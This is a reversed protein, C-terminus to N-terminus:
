AAAHGNPPDTPETMPAQARPGINRESGQSKRVGACHLAISRVRLKDAGTHANASKNNPALENNLPCIIIAVPLESLPSNM